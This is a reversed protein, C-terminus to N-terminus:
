NASFDEFITSYMNQIGRLVTKHSPRVQWGSGPKSSPLMSQDYKCYSGELARVNGNKSDPDQIYGDATNRPSEFLNLLAPPFFGKM